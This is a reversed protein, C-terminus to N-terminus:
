EEIVDCLFANGLYRSNIFRLEGEKAEEHKPTIFVFDIRRNKYYYYFNKRNYNYCAMIFYTGAKLDQKKVLSKLLHRYDTRESELSRDSIYVFDGNQEGHIVLIGNGYINDVIINGIYFRSIDKKDFANWVYKAFRESSFRSIKITKRANM